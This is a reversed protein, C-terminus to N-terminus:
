IQIKSFVLFHPKASYDDEDDVHSKNNNIKITLPDAILNFYELFRYLKKISLRVVTDYFSDLARQLMM